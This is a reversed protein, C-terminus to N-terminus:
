YGRKVDVASALKESAAYRRVGEVVLWIIRQLGGDSAAAIHPMRIVNPVQWLPHGAPLPESGSVDLAAGAIRGRRL